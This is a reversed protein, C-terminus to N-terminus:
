ILRHVKNKYQRYKEGHQKELFEEELRIAIQIILFTSFLVAFTVANPVILFLGILGILLFLYIPNRSIKFFGNTVLQTKNEYDIGIRWSQRMQSQAIVIGLFSIHLTALGLYQAWRYQLYYIPILYDYIRSRVVFLMMILLLLIILFKMVSGIYDHLNDTKGFTVPNIGTQRYVRVTPLVFIVLLYVLIFFPLYYRLFLNM